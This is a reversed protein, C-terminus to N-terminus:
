VALTDCGAAAVAEAPYQDDTCRYSRDRGKKCITAPSVTTESSMPTTPSASNSRRVSTLSPSRVPFSCCDSSHVLDHVQWEAAGKNKDANVRIKLLTKSPGAPFDAFLADFMTQDEMLGLLDAGSLGVVPHRGSNTQKTCNLWNEIDQITWDEM